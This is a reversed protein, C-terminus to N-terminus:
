STQSDCAVGPPSHKSFFFIIKAVKKHVFHCFICFSSIKLQCNFNITIFFILWHEFVEGNTRLTAFFHSNHSSALRLWPCCCLPVLHWIGEKGIWLVSRTSHSGFKHEWVGFGSDFLAGLWCSECCRSIASDEEICSIFSNLCIDCIFSWCHPHTIRCGSILSWIFAPIHEEYQTYARRKRKKQRGCDM